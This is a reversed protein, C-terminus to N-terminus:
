DYTYMRTGSLPDLARSRMLITLYWLSEHPWGPARYLGLLLVGHALPGKLRVVTAAGLHVAEAVTHAGAGTAGDQSRTTALTASAESGSVHETRRMPHQAAFVERSCNFAAHAATVARQHNMQVGVIVSTVRRCEDANNHGFLLNGAGGM